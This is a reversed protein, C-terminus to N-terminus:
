VRRVFVLDWYICQFTEDSLYYAPSLVNSDYIFLLANLLTGSIKPIM